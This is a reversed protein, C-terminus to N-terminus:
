PLVIKNFFIDAIGSDLAKIHKHVELVKDVQGSLKYDVGLNFWAKVYNPNIRIAQLDAEIAKAYQETDRYANGLNFWAKEYNPKVRVAQLYANIAEDKESKAWYANGLNYWAKPYDLKIHIAKQCAEISKGYQKTDSYAVGLNSLAFYNDPKISVAQLYSDIAKFYEKASWYAMGLYDWAISSKPKANTWKIAHDKMGVWDSREELLMAKSEWDITTQNPQVNNPIVFSNAIKKIVVNNVREALVNTSIAVDYIRDTGFFKYIHVRSNGNDSSRLYSIHLVIHCGLTVINLPTWGWTKGGLQALIADMAQHITQGASQLQDENLIIASSPTSNLLETATVIAGAYLYDDTFSYVLLLETSGVAKSYGALDIAAAISTKLIQVENGRRVHWSRPIDISAGHALKVTIFQNSIDGAFCNVTYFLFMSVINSYIFTHPEYIVSTEQFNFNNKLHNFFYNAYFNLKM